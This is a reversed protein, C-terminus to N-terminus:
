LMFMVVVDEKDAHAFCGCNPSRCLGGRTPHLHKGRKIEEKIALWPLLSYHVRSQQDPGSSESDCREQQPCSSAAHPTPSSDEQKPSNGVVANPLGKDCGEEPQSGRSGAARSESIKDVEVAYVPDVSLEMEEDVAASGATATHHREM